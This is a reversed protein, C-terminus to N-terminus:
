QYYIRVEEFIPTEGGEGTLEVRYQVWQNGNLDTSIVTGYHESFFTSDGTAGYWATWNGADPSGGSDPATRVQFELTCTSCTAPITEDWEIVTVASIGGTDFASSTLQGSEAAGGGSAPEQYGITIADLQAQDAGNSVLFARFLLQGASADFAAINAHVDTATNYETASTVVAWASGNWYQWTNGNDDSLQYYIEASGEKTATEEFSSWVDVDTPEFSSAPQITPEITPLGGGYAAAEPTFDSTWRAIDSVRVEDVSGSFGVLLPSGIQFAANGNNIGSSYSTSGALTGDVFVRMTSGDYTAAVHHWAGNPLSGIGTTVTGQSGGSRLVFNLRGAIDVSLYYSRNGGNGWKRIIYREGTASARNVWAELTISGTIDLGTHANDAIEAYDGSDDVTVATGFQGTTGYAVTGNVTLDNGNVSDDVLNGSVDDMHWMGMTNADIGSGGDDVLQAVGGTVEIDSTDYSYDVGDDFTYETTLECEIELGDLQIQDTGSSNMFVRVLLQNETADFDTINANVEAATTYDTAGTATTWASGNWYQWTTGDDDSLQYYIEASGEKTASETFRAWRDVTEPAYSNVPQITPDDTPYTEGYPVSEPTFATTWRAINSVRVEDILGQFASTGTSSISFEANGTNIGSSYSTSNSLVGDIFVYMTAGDYVAAVHHWENLPLSGTATTVTGQSGGSRLQFTIQGTANTRLFYSRNGGTSWKQMITRDGVAAQRNVWAELTITSSIDLGTQSADTIAAYDGTGDFLLADDFQGTQGYSPNGNVALTNGSASADVLNGSAEDMHWMGVTNADIPTGEAVLEAAGGTVAIDNTDFSYEGSDDFTYQQVGCSEATTLSVEGTTSVDLASDDSEYQTEDSWENQGDGGSWDTQTWADARWNTLYEATEVSRSIGYQGTWDVSTTLQKTHPDTYESPCVAIDGNTDRCVDAFALTRTYGDLSDNTSEGALEWYGNAPSLGTETLTLENWADAAISEVAEHAEQAYLGARIREGSNAVAQEAYILGSMFAGSLLAFVAVALMAEVVNIGQQDHRIHMDIILSGM